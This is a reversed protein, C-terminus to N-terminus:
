NLNIQIESTSDASIDKTNVKVKVALMIKNERKRENGRDQCKRVQVYEGMM